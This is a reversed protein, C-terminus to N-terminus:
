KIKTTEYLRRFKRWNACGIIRISEGRKTFWVTLITKSKAKGVWYWRKESKSHRLDEFLLGDPDYFCEMADSFSVGHKKLNQKEKDIDWEFEV